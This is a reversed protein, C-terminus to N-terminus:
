WFTIIIWSEPTPGLIQIRIRFSFQQVSISNWDIRLIYTNALSCVTFNRLVNALNHSVSSLDHIQISFDWSINHFKQFHLHLYNTILVPKTFEQINKCVTTSPVKQTNEKLVSIMRESVFLSSVLVVSTKYIGEVISTM